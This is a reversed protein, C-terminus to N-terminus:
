NLMWAIFAVKGWIGFKDSDNKNLCIIGFHLAFVLVMMGSFVDTEDISKSTLFILIDCIVSELKMYLVLFKSWLVYKQDM